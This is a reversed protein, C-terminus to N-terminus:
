SQMRPRVFVFRRDPEFYRDVPGCDGRLWLGGGGSVEMSFLDLEDGSDAFPTTAIILREGRPQNGYALRLAPGVEPPCLELGLTQAKECVESYLAGQKFGLDDVSVVALDVDTEESACHCAPKGFLDTVWEGCRHKSAELAARYAEATKYVGLKVTKWVPFVRRPSEVVTLEGRLFRQVGAEGGLKKVLANLQGATLNASAFDM